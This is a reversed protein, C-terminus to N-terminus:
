LEAVNSSEQAVPRFMRVGDRLLGGNQVLGAREQAHPLDAVAVAAAEDRVHAQGFILGHPRVVHLAGQGAEQLQVGAGAAGRGGREGCGSGLPDGENMDVTWSVSIAVAVIAVAM